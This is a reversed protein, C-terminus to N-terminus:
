VVRDARAFWNSMRVGDGHSERQRSFFRELRDRNAGGKQLSYHRVANDFFIAQRLLEAPKGPAIGSIMRAVADPYRAWDPEVVLMHHDSGYMLRRAGIPRALMERLFIEAQTGDRLLSEWYGIDAYVQEAGSREMLQAYERAWRHDPEGNKPQDNTENDGAFHGLHLPVGPHNAVITEWVVPETNDRAVECLAKSAGTHAMVPVNKERCWRFLADMSQNLAEPDVDPAPPCFRAASNGVPRFGITPYIKVGILGRNEVADKVLDLHDGKSRVDTWPNFGVQPLVRGGTAVNLMEMLTVQDELLANSERKGFWHNFEVLAPMFVAVSPATGATAYTAMAELLNDVRHSVFRLALRFAGVPDSGAALTEQRQISPNRARELVKLIEEASFDEAGPEEYARFGHDEERKPTIMRQYLRKFGKGSLERAMREAFQQETADRRERSASYITAVADARLTASAFESCLRQYEQGATPAMACAVTVLPDAMAKVLAGLLEPLDNAIPERLYGAADMDHANFIHSHVDIAIPVDPPPVADLLTRLSGTCKADGIRDIPAVCCGSLFGAAGM